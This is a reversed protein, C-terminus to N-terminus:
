LTLVIRKQGLGCRRVRDRLRVVPVFEVGELPTGEAAEGWARLEDALDLREFFECVEVAADIVAMDGQLVARDEVADVLDDERGSVLAGAREQVVDEVLVHM